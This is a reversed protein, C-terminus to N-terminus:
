SFTLARFIVVGKSSRSDDHQVGQTRVLREVRFGRPKGYLFDTVPRAEPKEASIDGRREGSRVDKELFYRKQCWGAQRLWEQMCFTRVDDGETCRSTLYARRDTQRRKRIAFIRGQFLKLPRIRFKLMAIQWSVLKEMIYVEQNINEKLIHLILIKMFSMFPFDAKTSTM